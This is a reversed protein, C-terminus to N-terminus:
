GNSEGRNTKNLFSMIFERIVDGHCELPACWCVLYLNGIKAFDILNEVEERFNTDTYFGNIFYERYKQVVRGRIEEPTKFQPEADSEKFPNAFISGKLKMRPMARGIYFYNTLEQWNEPPKFEAPAKKSLNLVKIM